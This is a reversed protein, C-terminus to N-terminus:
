LIRLWFGLLALSVGVLGCMLLTWTSGEGDMGFLVGLLVGFVMGFVALKWERVTGGRRWVRRGQCKKGEVVACVRGKCEQHWRRREMFGRIERSSCFAQDTKLICKQKPIDLKSTKRDLLWTVKLRVGTDVLEYFHRCTHKLSLADPYPLSTSIQLQLEVPLILLSPLLDANPRIVM